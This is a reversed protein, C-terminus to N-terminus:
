CRVPPPTPSGPSGGACPSRPPPARAWRGRSARGTCTVSSSTPALAGIVHRAADLMVRGDRAVYYLRRVDLLRAQAVTWLAYGVLMPALVGSAVEAVPRPVGRGQGELRALRSSGALWSTLLDTDTAHEELLREDDDWPATTM